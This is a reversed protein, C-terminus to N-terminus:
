SIICYTQLLISSTGYQKEPDDMLNSPWVPCFFRQNQGFQANRSQLELNFECIAIFHHVFSSNAYFLHGKTKWPWRDFKLNVRPLFQHSQFLACLQFYRPVPSGNKALHDMLNSPWARRFISSKIGIQILNSPGDGSDFGDSKGQQQLSHNYKITKHIKWIISRQPLQRIDDLSNERTRIFQRQSLFKGM